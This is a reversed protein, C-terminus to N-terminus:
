GHYYHLKNYCIQGAFKNRFLKKIDMPAEVLVDVQGPYVDDSGDVLSSISCKPDLPNGAVVFAKVTAPVKGRKLERIHQASLEEGNPKASYLAIRSSAFDVKTKKALKEPIADVLDGEDFTLRIAAGVGIVICVLSSM